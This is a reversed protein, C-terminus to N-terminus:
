FVKLQDPSFGSGVTSDPHFFSCFLADQGPTKKLAKKNEIFAKQTTDKKFPGLV